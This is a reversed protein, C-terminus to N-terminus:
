SAPRRLNSDQRAHWYKANLLNALHGLKTARKNNNNSLYFGAGLKAERNVRLVEILNTTIRRRIYNNRTSGLEELLANFKNANPSVEKRILRESTRNSFFCALVSILISWYRAVVRVSRAFLLTPLLHTIM